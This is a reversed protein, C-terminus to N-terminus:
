IFDYSMSNKAIANEYIKNHPSFTCRPCKDVIIDDHMKWHKPSGWFDRIQSLDIGDKIGTLLDDGRRDCCEGWDYQGETKNRGSPPMLVGNMFIAYCSKFDNKPTFDPNFKHTVGYVEFTEDHYKMAEKIQGRFIELHEPTFKHLSAEEKSNFWTPSVPRIQINRFGIEKALKTAQVVEGVNYPHLLYKMGLGPGMEPQALRTGKAQSYRVLEGVNAIVHDFEDKQHVKDYTEKTGANISIGVWTAKSLAELNNWRDIQTGNTVVGVEIGREIIEEIMKGTYKNLLAEGGGGVCVTNVKYTGDDWGHLFDPIKELIEKKLRSGKNEDMVFDANCFICKEDCLNLPDISITSPPPIEEGRRIGEWRHVHAFLKNSNYPNYQNKWEETQEQEQQEAM